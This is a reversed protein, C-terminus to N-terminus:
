FKSVVFELTNEDVLIFLKSYKKHEILHSLEQYGKDQFDVSYTTAQISKM